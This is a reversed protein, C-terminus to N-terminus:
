RALKKKKKWVASWQFSSNICAKTIRTMFRSQYALSTRQALCYITHSNLQPPEKIIHQSVPPDRPPPSQCGLCVSAYAFSPWLSRMHKLYSMESSKRESDSREEHADGIKTHPQFCVDKQYDKNGEKFHAMDPFVIVGANHTQLHVVTQQPLFVTYFFIM